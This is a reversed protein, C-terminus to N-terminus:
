SFDKVLAIEIEDEPSVGRNRVRANWSPDQRVVSFISRLLKPKLAKEWEQLWGYEDAEGDYDEPFHAELSFRLNFCKEEQYVKEGFM